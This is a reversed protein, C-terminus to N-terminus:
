TKGNIIKKIIFKEWEVAFGCTEEIAQTLKDYMKEYTEYPPM